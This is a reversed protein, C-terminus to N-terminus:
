KKRRLVLAGLGLLVMTAPEPVLTYSTRGDGLATASLLSSLNAETVLTGNVDLTAGDVFEMAWGTRKEFTRESIPGGFATTAWTFFVLYTAFLKM